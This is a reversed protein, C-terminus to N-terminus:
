KGSFSQEVADIGSNPDVPNKPLIEEENSKGSFSKFTYDPFMGRGLDLHKLCTQMNSIKRSVVDFQGKLANMRVDCVRKLNEVYALDIIFNALLNSVESKRLDASKSEKSAYKAWMDTLLDVMSEKFNYCQIVDTYIEEMRETAAQIKDLQQGISQPDPTPELKLTLVTKIEHYLSDYDLKPMISYGYVVSNVIRQYGDPVPVNTVINPTDNPTFPKFQVPPDSTVAVPEVVSPIAPESTQEAKVPNAPNIPESTDKPAVEPSKSVGMDKWFDDDNILNADPESM